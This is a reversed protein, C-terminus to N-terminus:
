VTTTDQTETTADIYLRFPLSNVTHVIKGEEQRAPWRKYNRSRKFCERYRYVYVCMSTTCTHTHMYMYVRMCAIPYRSRKRSHVQLQEAWGSLRCNQKEGRKEEGMVVVAAEATHAGNEMRSEREGEDSLIALLSVEFEDM